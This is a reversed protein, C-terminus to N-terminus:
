WSGELDMRLVEVYLCVIILLLQGNENLKQGCCHKPRSKKVILATM